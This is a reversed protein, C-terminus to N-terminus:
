KKLFLGIINNFKKFGNKTNTMENLFNEVCEKFNENAVCLANIRIFANKSQLPMRDLSNVGLYKIILKLDKTVIDSLYGEIFKIEEEKIELSNGPCYNNIKIGISKGKFIDSYIDSTIYLESNLMLKYLRNLGQEGIITKREIFTNFINHIENIITSSCEVIRKFEEYKESGRLANPVYNVLPGKVLKSARMFYSEKDKLMNFNFNKARRAPLETKFLDHNLLNLYSGILKIHETVNTAMFKNIQDLKLKKSKSVITRNTINISNYNEEVLNYIENLIGVCNSNNDCNSSGNNNNFMLFEYECIKNFIEDIAEVQENNARNKIKTKVEKIPKTVDSKKYPTNPPAIYGTGDASSTRRALSTRGTSSTRRAISTRGAFIPSSSGALTLTALSMALAKNLKSM